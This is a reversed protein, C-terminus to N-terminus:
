ASACFAAVREPSSFVDWQNEPYNFNNTFTDALTPSQAVAGVFAGFEPPFNELNAMMVNTWRTASHVRQNRRSDVKEVFRADFVDNAVIEEGLVFAAHSAANAGQGLMPDVTNQVDGLAIAITGNELEISTQRVAPVVGGQLIDLSSNALDFEAQDIREFCTPYHKALKELLLTKFAEPDDDYKTQVLIELDGGPLNEMVLANQMGNFTLTPIEIMEGAGPSFYMTVSRSPLQAIGKFIGVCLQRQPTTHPSLEPIKPFMDGTGKGTSVVVLDFEEALAAYDEQQIARYEVNGGREVFDTLLAPLYLRYDVARSPSRLDGYFRMPEPLGIYYHHGFYGVDGTQWHNVGLAKERDITVSFHAVTNPLRMSAYEEARKDSFLTVDVDNQQLYLALHLGATGAGVIGIKKSM